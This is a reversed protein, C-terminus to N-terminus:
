DNKLTLVIECEFKEGTNKKELVFIPIYHESESNWNGFRQWIGNYFIMIRCKLWKVITEFHEDTLQTGMIRKVKEKKEKDFLCNEDMDEISKDKLKEEIIKTNEKHHANNTSITTDGPYALVVPPASSPKRSVNNGSFYGFTYVCLILLLIYSVLLSSEDDFNIPTSNRSLQDDILGASQDTYTEDMSIKIRKNIFASRVSQHERQNPTPPQQDNSESLERKVSKRGRPVNYDGVFDFIKLSFERIEENGHDLLKQVYMKTGCRRLKQEIKEYGYAHITDNLTSLVAIILNDDCNTGLINSLVSIINIDVM